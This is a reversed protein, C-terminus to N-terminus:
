LPRELVFPKDVISYLEGGLRAVPILKEVNVSGNEVIADDIHICVVRGLVLNNSGLEVIKFLKCELSIRCEEVRPPTVMSSPAPSLGVEDFESTQADYNGSSQVMKEALDSSVINVVFEETDIVNRLTDKLVPESGALRKLGPSFGLIPPNASFLNFFSFPALNNIGNKSCTSVWAIPRPVVASLLLDYLQRSSSKDCEVFM